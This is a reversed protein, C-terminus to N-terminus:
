SRWPAPFQQAVGAEVEIDLGAMDNFLDLLTLRRLFKRAARRTLLGHL